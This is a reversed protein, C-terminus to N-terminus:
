CRPSSSSRRCRSRSRSATWSSSSSASGPWCCSFRSRPSASGRSRGCRPRHRVRAPVHRQRRRRGGDVRLLRRDLSRVEDGVDDGYAAGLLRRSSSPALSRRARGVAAGVIVLAVWATRSSTALQGGAPTLSSRSVAAGVLRARDLVGHHRSTTAALYAYGFSTVAGPRASRRVPVSVVYALQSRCRSRQRLSFCRLRHQLPEGAPRAASAPCPARRLRAVGLVILPVVLGCVGSVAMGRSVAVIGTPTPERLSSTPWTGRSGVAYGLAAHTTTSRRSRAQRWASSSTRSRPPFSGSSRTRAPKARLRSGDGTLSWRSGCRLSCPSSFSRTASSPSSRGRLRGRTAALQRDDRARGPVPSRRRPDGARRDRRRRLRRVRRLFRGDRRDERVRTRHGRRHARRLRQRRDLSTATLAASGLSGLGPSDTRKSMSASAYPGHRVVSEPCAGREVVEAALEPVDVVSAGDEDRAGVAEHSRVERVRQDLEARRHVCEDARGRAPRQVVDAVLAAPQLDM